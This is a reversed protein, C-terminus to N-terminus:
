ACKAKQKNRRDTSGSGNEVAAHDQLFHEKLSGPSQPHLFDEKTLLIVHYAVVEPGHDTTLREVSIGEDSFPNNEEAQELIDQVLDWDREM